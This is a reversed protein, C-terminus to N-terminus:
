TNGVVEYGFDVLFSEKYMDLQVKVRKKRKDVKTIKGEMGKLPGSKIVIRQNEDFSVQSLGVVNGSLFHKL